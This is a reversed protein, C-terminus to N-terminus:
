CSVLGIKQMRETFFLDSMDECCHSVGLVRTLLALSWGEIGEEWHLLNWVGIQKKKPDKPWPGIPLKYAKETLNEFKADIIFDKMLENIRLTKGFKEGAEISVEGWKGFINDPTVTGDDSIPIVSMEVQEIWGGPRLHDMVQQYFEPWDAISGYLSRVHIFDFSGRPYAWDDSCADNIEFRLNPSVWTPQIPSLDFGIVEASPFRDAFDRATTLTRQFYFAPLNCQGFV